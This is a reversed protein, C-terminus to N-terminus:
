LRSPNWVLVVRGLVRLGAAAPDDVDVAAYRPNDSLFTVGKAGIKRQVRKVYLSEGQVMVYIADSKISTVGRDVLMLAGEGITPAMSDGAATLVALADFSTAPVNARIWERNARMMNVAQDHEGKASLPMSGLVDLAPIEVVGDAPAVRASHDADMWGAPMGFVEEIRRAVNHGIGKDAKQGAIRYAYQKSLGLKIAFPTVGGVQAALSQANTRRTHEITM